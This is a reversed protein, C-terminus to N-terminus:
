KMIQIATNRRKLLEKYSKEVANYDPKGTRLPEVIEVITDYLPSIGCNGIVGKLMHATEFAGKTDEARLQQGLGEFASDALMQNLIEIYFDEDEVFRQKTAQIERCGLKALLDDM